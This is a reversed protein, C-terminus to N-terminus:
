KCKNSQKYTKFYKGSSKIGIPFICNIQTNFTCLATFYIEWHPVSVAKKLTFCYMLTRFQLKLPPPPVYNKTGCQCVVKWVIIIWCYTQILTSQEIRSPKKTSVAASLIHCQKKKLIYNQM